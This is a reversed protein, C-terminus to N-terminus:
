MMSQKTRSVAQAEFQIQQEALTIGLIMNIEDETLQMIAEWTIGMKLLRLIVMWYSFVLTEQPTFEGAKRMFAM